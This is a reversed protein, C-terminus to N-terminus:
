KIGFLWNLDVSYKKAIHAMLAASPLFKFQEVAAVYNHDIGLEKAFSRQTHGRQLRIEKFRECIIQNTPNDPSSLFRNSPRKDKTGKEKKTVKAKKTTTQKTTAM